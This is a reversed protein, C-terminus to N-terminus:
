LCPQYPRSMDRQAGNRIRDDCCRNSRSNARHRAPLGHTWCNSTLCACAVSLSIWSIRFLCFSSNPIRSKAVPLSSDGYAGNRDRLHFRPCVRDAHGGCGPLAVGSKAALSSRQALTRCGARGGHQRHRRRIACESRSRGSRQIPRKTFSPYAIRWGSSAKTLRFQMDLGRFQFRKEPEGGLRWDPAIVVYVGKIQM